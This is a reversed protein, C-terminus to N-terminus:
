SRVVPKLKVMLDDKEILQFVRQRKIWDDQGEVLAIDFNWLLRATVLRMESYALNKGICDRPGVAFPRFATKNDNAYRSDYLPHSRPLWREPAFTDPNAFNNPNHHTAWQYISVVTGEPIFHGNVEAGPSVRPPTDAAPPYIRLIEELCAHLYTLGEVSQMRIDDESSFSSRVEEVLRQYVEPTRSLYFVLGCLATATTESGAVIFTRSNTLLEAHTLGEGDSNKRLLYTMFDKRADPGLAMRKETTAEAMRIIEMNKRIEEKGVQLRLLPEFLKFYSMFINKANAKATSFIMAVFPHYGSNQLCGFPEGFALDGVIDFTLFNLWSSIDVESDKAALEHLRTIFLDLHTRVYSEQEKLAGASFAHAVTRRQRRHDDRLAPLLGLRGVQYAETTKDFEPLNPRRMYVEPWGISGDVSIRNPAIRVMPGYKAHLATTSMVFTGQIKDKVLFPIISIANLRPGPLKALPHFYLRYIALSAYYLFVLISGIGLAQPITMSSGQLVEPANM